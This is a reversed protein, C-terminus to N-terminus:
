RPPNYLIPKDSIAFNTMWMTEEKVTAVSPQNGGYFASYYFDDIHIADDHRWRMDRRDLALVGDFWVQLVGDRKSDGKRQSTEPTNMKIRFQVSVPRGKPWVYANENFGGTALEETAGNRQDVYAAYATATGNPFRRHKALFDREGFSMRMAFGNYGNARDDPGTTTVPGGKLGPGLKGGEPFVIDSNLEMDYSVYIEDRIEGPVPMTFQSGTRGLGFSRRRDDHSFTQKLWHKGGRNVVSMRQKGSFAEVRPAGFATAMQTETVGSSAGAIRSFDSTLIPPNLYQSPTTPENVVWDFRATATGGNSDDVTVTVPYNGARTVTGRIRGTGSNISLQAPLGSASYTLSDGDSDNAQVAVNVNAGEAHSQGGPNTITPAANSPAEPQALSLRFWNVEMGSVEFRLRLQQRGAQLAIGPFSFTQFRHSAGTSAITLPGSVDVGDVELHIRGNGAPARASRIEFQYTGAVPVNIDYALWERATVYSVIAPGPVGDSTSAETAGVRSLDVSEGRGNDYNGRRRNDSDHYGVGEGGPNYNEVEIFIPEPPMAMTSLPLLATLALPLCARRFPKKDVPNKTNM